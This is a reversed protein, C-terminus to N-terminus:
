SIPTATTTSSERLARRLIKGTSTKPLDTVLTIVRPVKYAALYKRCHELLESEGLVANAHLVVFARAIEGKEEDPVSAVAVMAVAPHMGIVQEIEAPYINYGATIILDKKRDVIFLYGDEDIRAIDGTALWGKADITERTAADNKWYGEMSLAGRVMLEGAQGSDVDRTPDLLDVIRAEVGPVPLGISGHRPPWYPSHTIAPGSVETMGWLELLPCGFREVVADIKATPMTQGGVTCRTLSSLDASGISSHALMQYYMTPVGEFLTVREAAILRLAEGAEFRSTSVLRLGSLFASNMVINGYVHPFPLSTLVTDGFHRVHMTATAALSSYLCRHTLMAGKPRGTTGSTYGITFLECPSVEVPSLYEDSLLSSFEITGGTHEGLAIVQVAEARAITTVKEASVILLGAESDAVAFAVEEGSLLINAPVVVAGLRALAHYAVIWEWGNPLHLVVRAGRSVGLRALGGAFRGALEDLERFTFSRSGPITLAVSDGFRRAADTTLTSLEARRM